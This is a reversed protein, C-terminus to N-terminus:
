DSSRRVGRREIWDAPIGATSRPASRPRTRPTSSSTANRWTCSRDRERREAAALVVDADHADSPRHLAAMGRTEPVRDPHRGRHPSLLLHVERGQRDQPQLLGEQLPVPSACAGAAASTRISWSSATRPASTSRGVRAPRRARPTSATSVLHAASLVHLDARVRVQGQGRHGQADCRPATSRRVASTTM